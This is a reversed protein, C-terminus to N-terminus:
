APLGFDPRGHSQAVRGGADHGLTDNIQKFKDLDMFLLAFRNHGAIRRQNQAVVDDLKLFFSKRNSLGTLPDHYAIFELEEEKKKLAGIDQLTFIVGQAPDSGAPFVSGRLHVEM